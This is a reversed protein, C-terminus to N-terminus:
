YLAWQKHFTHVLRRSNEWKRIFSCIERLQIQITDRLSHLVVSHFWERVVPRTGTYNIIYYFMIQWVNIAWLWIVLVFFLDNTSESCEMIPAVRFTSLTRISANCANPEWTSKRWGLEPQIPNHNCDNWVNVSENLFRVSHISQPWVNWTYRSRSFPSICSYFFLYM